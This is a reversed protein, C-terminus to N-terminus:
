KLEIDTFGFTEAAYELLARSYKSSYIGEKFLENTRGPGMNYRMLVHHWNDNNYYDRCETLIIIMCDTNVYPDYIKECFEEYTYGLKKALYEFNIENIQFLGHDNTSSKLHPRYTTEKWALSFVVEAPINANIASTYIYEKLDDDLPIFDFMEPFTYEKVTENVEETVDESGTTEETANNIFPISPILPHVESMVDNIIENQTYIDGQSAIIQKYKESLENFKQSFSNLMCCAFLTVAIFAAFLIFMIMKAARLKDALDANRHRLKDNRDVLQSIRNRLDDETQSRLNISYMVGPKMQEGTQAGNVSKTTDFQSM